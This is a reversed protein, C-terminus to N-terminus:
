PIPTPTERDVMTGDGVQGFGNAGWCHLEPGSARIACAHHGGMGGTLRVVDDFSPIARAIQIRQEFTGIGATGLENYGWCFVTGTTTRACHTREGGWLEAIDTLGTVALPSARTVLTGDGLQGQSNDGWCSVTGSARRACTAVRSATVEVADTVGPVGVPLDRQTMTGDGIQGDTNYGWCSITGDTVACAHWAGSSVSTAGSVGVVIPGPTRHSSGTGLQGRHNPGWCQVQGLSVRACSFEGGLAFEEVTPAGLVSVPTTADTTGGDGLQGFGNHGWCRLGGAGLRVCTHDHGVGLLDASESLLVPVPTARDVLTGDGLQGRHNRGWCYVRGADTLACTHDEGIGAQVIRSCAGMADCGWPCACGSADVPSDPTADLPADPRADSGADVVVPLMRCTESELDCYEGSACSDGYLCVGAVCSGQDCATTAPCDSPGACEPMGCVPDTPNEVCSSDMCRGGVCTQDDSSCDVGRCDRTIVVVVGSAEQVDVRVTREVVDLGMGDLLSVRLSHPGKELRLDAIREGALYDGSPNVARDIGPRGDAIVRTTTFDVGPVLDTRLDAFVDVESSSCGSAVLATAMVLASASSRM